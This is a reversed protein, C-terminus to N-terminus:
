PCVRKGNDRTGVFLIGAPSLAMSRANKVDEAYFDIKFGTPLKIKALRSDSSTQNTTSDNPTEISGDTSVTPNNCALFLM